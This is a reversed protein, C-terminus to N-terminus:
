SLAQGRAPRRNVHILVDPGPSDGSCTTPAILTDTPSGDLHLPLWKTHAGRHDRDTASLRLV